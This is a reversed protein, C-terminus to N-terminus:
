RSKDDPFFARIRGRPALGSLSIPEALDNWATNGAEDRAEVRLYIQRPVNADVKWLYQGNHPLSAVFPTWPGNPQESFSLTIPNEGPARDAYEWRIDLQGAQDGKGYAAGTLRCVPPTTDVGVWIDAQDGSQPRKGSLGTGAEVIVQFGFVGEGDVQVDIPSKRDADIGLMKWSRGGDPTGWLEVKAVGSPGVADIEYDLQFRKTATMRPRVGPPLELIDSVPTKPPTNANLESGLTASTERLFSPSTPPPQPIAAGKEVNSSTNALENTPKVPEKSSVTKAALFPDVPQPAMSGPRDGPTADARSKPPSEQSASPGTDALDGSARPLFIQRSTVVSNGARDQIQARLNLLRGAQKPVFQTKGKWEARPSHDGLSEIAVPQWQAGALIELRFSEPAVQTDRAEWRVQIEGAGGIDANLTLQPAITDVLVRLEPQPTGSPKLEGRRDITRVAFWYEGDRAARFPFNTASPPQRGYLQWNAGKDSSVYLQVETTQSSAEGSQLAFPITFVNQRTALPLSPTATSSGAPTDRSATTSAGAAATPPPTGQAQVSIATHLAFIPLLARLWKSCRRVSKAPASLPIFPSSGKEIPPLRHDLKFRM